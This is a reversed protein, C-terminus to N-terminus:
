FKMRHPNKPGANGALYEQRLADAMGKAEMLADYKLKLDQNWFGNTEGHEKVLAAAQGIHFSASTDNHVWSMAWNWTEKFTATLINM